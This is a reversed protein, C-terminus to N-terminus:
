PPKAVRKFVTLWVLHGKSVKKVAHLLVSLKCLDREREERGRERGGERGGEERGRGREVKGEEWETIRERIDCERM